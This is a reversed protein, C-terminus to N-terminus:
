TPFGKQYLFLKGFHVTFCNPFYFIDLLYIIQFICIQVCKIFPAFHLTKKKHKSFPRWRVKEAEAKKEEMKKVGLMKAEKFLSLNVDVRHLVYAFAKRSM